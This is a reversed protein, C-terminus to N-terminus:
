GDIGEIHITMLGHVEPNEEQPTEYGNYYTIELSDYVPSEPELVSERLPALPVPYPPPPPFTLVTPRLRCRTCCCYCACAGLLLGGGIFGWFLLSHMQPPHFVRSIVCILDSGTCLTTVRHATEFARLETNYTTELVDVQDKLQSLKRIEPLLTELSHFWDLVLATWDFPVSFSLSVQYRRDAPWYVVQSGLATTLNFVTDLLTSSNVLVCSSNAELITQSSLTALRGWGEWCVHEHLVIIEGPKLKRICRLQPPQLPWLTWLSGQGIWIDPTIEAASVLFRNPGHPSKIEWVDQHIVWDWLCGGWPGPLIRYTPAWIGSVPGYAQFSCQSRQCDWSSFRWTHRWPWLEPPVGSTNRLAAPWAQHRLDERIDALQTNLFDQVESCALDWQLAKEAGSIHYVMQSLLDHTLINLTSIVHLEGIGAKLGTVQAASILGAAHELQGLRSEHQSTKLVSWASAASNAGKWLTDAIGRKARHGGILFRQQMLRVAAGKSCNPYTAAIQFHSLPLSFRITGLTADLITWRFGTIDGKGVTEYWLQHAHAHLARKATSMNASLTPTYQILTCTFNATPPLTQECTFDPAFPCHRSTLVAAKIALTVLYCLSRLEDKAHCSGPLLMTDVNDRWGHMFYTRVKPQSNPATTINVHDIFVTGMSEWSILRQYLQGPHDRLSFFLRASCYSFLDGSLSPRPWQIVNTHETILRFIHPTASRPSRSAGTSFPYDHSTHNVPPPFTPAPTPLLEPITQCPSPVQGGRMKSGAPYIRFGLRYWMAMFVGRLERRAM